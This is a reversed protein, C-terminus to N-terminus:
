KVKKVMDKRLGCRACMDVDHSQGTEHFSRLMQMKTGTWAEKITMDKINGLVVQKGTGGIISKCCPVIDGDALVILRQYLQPCAWDPLPTTDATEAHFDLEDEVAVEDVKDKWFELFAEVDSANDETKVMQVRTQPHSLNLEKRMDMFNKINEVVTDFDGGIRTQNYIDKNSGEVSFIIKDLGSLLVKKAMDGKLLNANTNIMVETIGNRKAQKVAYPLFSDTLPEGRYQLKISYANGSIEYLIDMIDDPMMNEQVPKDFSQFCMTCRLNCKTTTEIDVHIPYDGPDRETPRRVWEKRYEQYIATQPQEKKKIIHFSHDVHKIM